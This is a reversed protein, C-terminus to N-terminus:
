LTPTPVAAPQRTAVRGVVKGLGMVGLAVAAAGLGVGRDVLLASRWGLAETLASGLPAFVTSALGGAVTIM